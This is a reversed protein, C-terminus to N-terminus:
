SIFLDRQHMREGTVKSALNPNSLQFATASTRLLNKICSFDCGITQDDGAVEDYKEQKLPMKFKMREAYLTCVEWPVHLKVYITNM